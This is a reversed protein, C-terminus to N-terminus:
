MAALGWVALEHDSADELGSISLVGVSTGNVRLPVAGDGPAFRDSPMAFAAAFAVPDQEVYRRFVGLSSADFQRVVAAKREVWGDNMPSSGPLGVHFVRQEGLFVAIVVPLEQELAREVLINGLRWAEAHGFRDFGRIEEDIWTM